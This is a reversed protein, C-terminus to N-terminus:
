LNKIQQATELMLQYSKALIEKMFSIYRDYELPKMGYFVGSASRIEATNRKAYVGNLLLDLPLYVACKLGAKQLLFQLLFVSM